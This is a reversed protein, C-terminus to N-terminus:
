KELCAISELVETHSSYIYQEEQGMLMNAEKM